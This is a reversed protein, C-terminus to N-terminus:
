NFFRKRSALGLSLLGSAILSLTAPEPTPHLQQQYLAAVQAPTLTNDWVGVNDILGAFDNGPLGNFWTLGGVIFPYGNLPNLPNGGQSGEFTGDVYISAVGGQFTAVIQHWNDDNVMTTSVPSCPYGAWLHSTGFAGGCGDVVNGIAIFYGESIGAFHRSLVIYGANPTPQPTPAIKVWTQLSFASGGNFNFHDGMNIFGNGSISVAGGSVGGTGTFYANGDLTGNVGGVSDHAITGGTENFTWFSLLGAQAAPVLAMILLLVFLIRPRLLNLM